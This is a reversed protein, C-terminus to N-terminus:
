SAEARRAARMVRIPDRASPVSPFGISISAFVDGCAEAQWARHFSHNLPFGRLSREIRKFEGRWINSMRVIRLGPVRYMSEACCQRLRLVIWVLPALCDVLRQYNSAKSGLRGSSVGACASSRNISQSVVIARSGATDSLAAARNAACGCVSGTM